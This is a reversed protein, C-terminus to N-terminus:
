AVLRAFLRDLEGAPDAGCLGTHIAGPQLVTSGPACLWGFRESPPQAAMPGGSPDGAAVRVLWDLQEAVPEPHLGPALAQLRVRDLEVRAGLFRATRAFLVVGANLREGRVVDPVVRWVCYAYAHHGDAM